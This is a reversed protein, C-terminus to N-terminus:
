LPVSRFVDLVAGLSNSIWWPSSARVLGFLVGLVTGLAVSILTIALTTGAGYLLFQFDGWTFSGGFYMAGGGLISVIALGRHAGVLHLGQFDHLLPLGGRLLVRINQLDRCQAEAD